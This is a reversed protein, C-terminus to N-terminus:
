ELKAQIGSDVETLKQKLMKHVDDALLLQTLWNVYYYMM